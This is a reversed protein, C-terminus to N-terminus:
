NLRIYRNNRANRAIDRANLFLTCGTFGFIMPALILFCFFLSNESYSAESAQIPYMPYEFRNSFTFSIPEEFSQRKLTYVSRMFLALGSTAIAIGLIQYRRTQAALSLQNSTLIKNRLQFLPDPWRRSPPLSLM